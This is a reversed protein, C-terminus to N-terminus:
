GCLALRARRRHELAASLHEDVEERALRWSLGAVHLRSDRSVAISLGRKPYYIAM